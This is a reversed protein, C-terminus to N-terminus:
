KGKLIDNLKDRSSSGIFGTPASLGLPTLVGSAYKQQFKKAGALTVSGFYTTENGPSGPGSNALKTEPASNLVIQLYKVDPLNMGLKLNTQFSFNDPIGEFSVEAASPQEKKQQLYIILKLITSILEERSMQSLPKELTFPASSVPVAEEEEPVEEEPVEEEEDESLVEGEALTTFTKDTSCSSCSINGSSDKSKLQYHYTTSPTLGTITLSHSAVYSTTKKELGYNTSTGYVVWSTSGENTKWTITASNKAPVVNIESIAPPTTDTASGGSSQNGGGSQNLSATFTLDKRMVEGAAFTEVQASTIENGNNYGSIIARFNITGSEVVLLRNEAPNATAIDNTGYLGATTTTIEEQDIRASQSNYARIKTGVPINAGNITAQGYFAMPLVLTQALVFVPLVLFSIFLILSIIKKM